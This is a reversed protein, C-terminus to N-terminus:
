EIVYAKVKQIGYNLAESRSNFALDIRNGQIAGGQDEAIAEGYGEVWLRTGMPIVAPDVAAVGKRVKGGMYTLDGWKGNDLPGSAYATATMNLVKKYNAPAGTLSDNKVASPPNLTSNRNLLLAMAALNDGYPKITDVVRREVEKRLTAEVNNGINSDAIGAATVANTSALQQLATSAIVSWLNDRNGQDFQKKVKLLEQIRNLNGSEIAAETLKDELLEAHVAPLQPSFFSCAMTLFMAAIVKKLALVGEQRIM